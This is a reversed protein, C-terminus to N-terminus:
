YKLSSKHLIFYKNKITEGYSFVRDDDFKFLKTDFLKHKIQNLYSNNYQITFGQGKPTLTLMKGIIKKDLIKIDTIQIPVDQYIEIKKYKKDSFYQVNFNIKELVKKNIQFTKLLTIEETVDKSKKTESNGILENQINKLSPKVKIIAYASYIKPKLYVYGAGMLTFLITIFLISWKYKRLITFIDKFTFENTTVNKSNGM